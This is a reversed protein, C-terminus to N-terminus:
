FLGIMVVADYDYLDKEEQVQLMAHQKCSPVPEMIHATIVDQLTCSMSAISGVMKEGLGELALPLTLCQSKSSGSASKVKSSHPPHSRYWESNDRDVKCKVATSSGPMSILPAVFPQMVANFGRPMVPTIPSPVLLIPVPVPPTDNPIPTTHMNDEDLDLNHFEVQHLTNELSSMVDAPANATTTQTINSGSATPTLVNTTLSTSAHFGVWSSTHTLIIGWLVEYHSWGKNRLPKASPNHQM